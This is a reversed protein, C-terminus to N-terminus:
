EGDCSLCLKLIFLYMTFPVPPIPFVVNCKAHQMDNVDRLHLENLKFKSAHRCRNCHELIEQKAHGDRMNNHLTEGYYVSQMTKHCQLKAYSEKSNEM